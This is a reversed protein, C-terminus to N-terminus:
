AATSTSKLVQEFAFPLSLTGAGICTTLLTFISSFITGKMLGNWAVHLRGFHGKGSAAHSMSEAPSEMRIQRPSYAGSGPNIGGDEVEM